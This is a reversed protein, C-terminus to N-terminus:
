FYSIKDQPTSSASFNTSDDWSTKLVFQKIVKVYMYLFIINFHNILLNDSITVRQM